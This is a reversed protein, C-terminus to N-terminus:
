SIWARLFISVALSVGPDLAFLLPKLVLSVVSEKLFKLCKGLRECRAGEDTFRPTAPPTQLATLEAALM